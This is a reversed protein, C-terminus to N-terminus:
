IDALKMEELSGLCYSTDPHLTGEQSRWVCLGANEVMRQSISSDGLTPTGASSLRGVDSRPDLDKEHIQVRRHPISSNRGRGPLPPM